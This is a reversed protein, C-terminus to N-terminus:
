NAEKQTRIWEALDAPNFRWAAGCKYGPLLGRRAMMEVNTRTKQLLAAVETITLQREILKEM